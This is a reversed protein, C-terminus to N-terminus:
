LQLLACSKLVGDRKQQQALLLIAVVADVFRENEYTKGRVRPAYPTGHSTNSYPLSSPLGIPVGGRM